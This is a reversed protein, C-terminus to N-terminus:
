RKEYVAFLEFFMDVAETELPSMPKNSRELLTIALDEEAADEALKAAEELWARRKVLRRILPYKEGVTVPIDFTSEVVEVEEPQTIVEENITQLLSREGNKSLKINYPIRDKTTGRLLSIKGEKVLAMLIHTMNHRDVNEGPKAIAKTLDDMTDFSKYTNMADMIRAKLSVSANNGSRQNVHYDDLMDVADNLTPILTWHYSRGTIVAGDKIAGFELRRSIIGCSEFTRIAADVFSTSVGLTEAIRSARMFRYETKQPMLRYLNFLLERERKQRDIFSSRFTTKEAIAVSTV